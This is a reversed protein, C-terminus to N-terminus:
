EKDSDTVDTAASTTSHRGRGVIGEAQRRLAEVTNEPQEKKKAARRAAEEKLEIAKAKLDARTEQGSKPATLIGAVVGAAVGLITGALFKNRNM